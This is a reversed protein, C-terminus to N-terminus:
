GPVYSKPPPKGGFSDLKVAEAEKSVPLITPVTYVGSEKSVAKDGAAAQFRGLAGLLYDEVIEGCIWKRGLSEAAEGTVCSGGFPDLVTDGRDTLMRIFFDPLTRPFRAPHAKIGMERCFQQYSDDSVTNPAAILNPPIAGGNDRGWTESVVHGSPRPGSNYGNKFLAQQSKGYPTLVRRNSAKPWPTPSLWWVPNVADKVRLRRINVWEAPAPMRAPNWWYFDQALYFGYEECLMALLEFQYLSKAPMGELWAPGIDIVLSGTPKLVRKMGEAFPRFWELYRHAPENGYKKKRILGFPPSTMILDVSQKKLTSQMLMRSDGLYM